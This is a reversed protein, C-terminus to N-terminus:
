KKLIIFYREENLSKTAMIKMDEYNYVLIVKGFAGEGLKNANENFGFLIPVYLKSNSIKQIEREQM